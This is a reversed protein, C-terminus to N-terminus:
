SRGADGVLHMSLAVMSGVFAVVSVIKAVNILDPAANHVSAAGTLFTALLMAFYLLPLLSRWKSRLSSPGGTPVAPPADVIKNSPARDM